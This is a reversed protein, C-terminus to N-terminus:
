ENSYEPVNQYGFLNYLELPITLERKEEFICSKDMHCSEQTCCIGESACRGSNRRCSSNGAICPENEHFQGEKLCKLTDPTGILCGFPGCCIGPGFCQGSRAPGCSICQKINTDLSNIRGNRKGGRPCNTILCGHSLQDQIICLILTFIILKVM